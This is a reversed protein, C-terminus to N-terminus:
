RLTKKKNDDEWFTKNIMSVIFDKDFDSLAKLAKTTVGSEGPAKNNKM